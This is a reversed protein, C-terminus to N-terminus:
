KPNKEEFCYMFRYITSKHAHMLENLQSVENKM